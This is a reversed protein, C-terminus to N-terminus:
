ATFLGSSFQSTWSKLDELKFWKCDFSNLDLVGEFGKPVLELSSSSSSNIRREDESELLSEDISSSFSGKKPSRDPLSMVWQVVSMNRALSTEPIGSYARRLLPWGLKQERFPDGAFMSISRSGVVKKSKKVRDLVGEQEQEQEEEYASKVTAVESDGFESVMEKDDISTLSPRPDQIVGVMMGCLGIM